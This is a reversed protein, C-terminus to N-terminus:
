YEYRTFWATQTGAGSNTNVKVADGATMLSPACRILLSVLQDALSTVNSMQVASLGNPVFSGTYARANGSGNFVGITVDNGGFNMPASVSITIASKGVPVTYITNDGNSLALNRETKLPFTSDFEVCRFWINLTNNVSGVALAALIDGPELIVALLNTAATAAGANVGTSQSIPYYTGSNKIKVFYNVATSGHTNYAVALVVLLRKGTPVTYIDTEAATDLGTAYIRKWVANTPAAPLGPFAFGGGGAPTTFAGTGDLFKTADNPLLGAALLPVVFPGSLAIDDAKHPFKAGEEGLVLQYAGLTQSWVARLQIDKKTLLPNLLIAKSKNAAM